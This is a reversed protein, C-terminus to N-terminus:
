QKSKAIAIVAAIDSEDSSEAVPEPMAVAAEQKTFKHLLVVMVKIVCAIFYSIVVTIILTLFSISIGSMSEM